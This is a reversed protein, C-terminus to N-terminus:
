ESPASRGVLVLSRAGQEVLWQAVSLGVGGLGGTILYTADPRIEPAPHHTLVIKGIHRAQAMYRFAPIVEAMPFTKVPLPRLAGKEFGAVVVRLLEQILEPEHQAAAALDVVFYSADPRVAAVQAPDWIGRKGLEIFRGNEALCHLSRPIFEDALSNLVVDVGRGGTAGLLENAFALSRSDFVHRVGLAGLFDRKAASGTTAFVEAGARQAIQIAAMGVGGAGAHVLVRDGATIRALHRLAYEATLFASPLAAAGAMSLGTPKPTVLEARTTVFSRFAGPAMGLVADGIRIQTVGEGVAAVVGAFEGGLPVPGGPYQGLVNLVDRFALGTAVVEVEVEGAGPPRRELRQFELSDLVQPGAVSLQYPEGNLLPLLEPRALQRRVLRSVYRSGGRIAVQDEEGPAAVEALLAAVDAADGDAGLDVRTCRLEPHELAIVKGLGWLPAHLPLLPEGSLAAQAGRTVLWLRPSAGAGALAQVLHLAGGTVRLQAAAVDDASPDPTYPAHAADDLAWLHIVGRLPPSGDSIMEDLLRRFSAPEAPDVTLVEPGSAVSRAGEPRVLVCRNGYARLRVALTSGVSAADSLILWTGPAEDM